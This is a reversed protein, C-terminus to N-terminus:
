QPSQLAATSVPGPIKSAWRKEALQGIFRGTSEVKLVSGQYTHARASQGAARLGGVGAQM